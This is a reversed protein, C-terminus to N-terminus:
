QRGPLRPMFAPEAMVSVTEHSYFRQFDSLTTVVRMADDSEPHTTLQHVDVSTLTAEHIAGIPSGAIAVSPEPREATIRLSLDEPREAGIIRMREVPLAHNCGNCVVHEGANQQPVTHKETVIIPSLLDRLLANRNQIFAERYQQLNAGPFHRRIFDTYGQVEQVPHFTRSLMGFATASIEPRTLQREVFAPHDRQDPFEGTAELHAHDAQFRRKTKQPVLHSALRGLQGAMRMGFSERPRQNHQNHNTM